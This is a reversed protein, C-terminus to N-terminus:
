GILAMGYTSPTKGYFLTPKQKAGHWLARNHFSFALFLLWRFTAESDQAPDAVQNRIM